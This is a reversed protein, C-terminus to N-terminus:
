FSFYTGYLTSFMALFSSITQKLCNRRKECHKGTIYREHTLICCQMTILLYKGLCDQSIVVRFFLAKSFMKTFPFFAPLWCKKWKGFHKIGNGVCIETKTQLHNSNPGTWFTTTQYLSLICGFLSGVM